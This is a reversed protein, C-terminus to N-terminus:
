SLEKVLKVKQICVTQGINHKHKVAAYNMTYYNLHLYTRQKKLM